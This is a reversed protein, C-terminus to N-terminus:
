LRMSYSPSNALMALTGPMASCVALFGTREYVRLILEDAPLVAALARLEELLRVFASFRGGGAKEGEEGRAAGLLALYVRGQPQALRLAAADDPTFGFVPSLLVSLLPIDQLPNDLVRLLSLLVSVEYAGLYGGAVDAYAPLGAATLADVYTQAQRNAGRLLISFDRARAPRPAGDKGQVTYGARLMQAILEAIHRAELAANDDEEDTDATELLRLCVDAEGQLRAFYAAAPTM